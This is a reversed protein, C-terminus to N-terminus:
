VSEAPRRWALLLLPALAAIAAAVFPARPNARYLVAGIPPGVLGGVYFPFLVQGLVAGRREASVSIALQAMTAATIAASAASYVMLPLALEIVGSARAAFLMAVCGSVATTALVPLHGFRDVLRGWFPSTFAQVAALASLVLGIATIAAAQSPYGGLRQIVLPLFPMLTWLGIQAVGLALFLRWVLSHSVIEAVADRLARLVPVFVPRPRVPEVVLLTQAVAVGASAAADFLLLGRVDVLHILGAGLLPGIARGAPSGAAVIGVAIGLRQKPTTEAQLALMVGTNGLIFGSLARFALGVEPNPSLAWGAFIVAEVAASRVVVLKRGYRDAWVGWFPALPIGIVWSLSSMAATWSPVDQVRVGLEHLYLPTYASLQSWSLSEVATTVFFLGALLLWSLPAAGGSASRADVEGTAPLATSKLM